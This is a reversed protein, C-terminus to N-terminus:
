QLLCDYFDRPIFIIMIMIIVFFLFFIEHAFDKPLYRRMKNKTSRGKLIQSLSVYLDM